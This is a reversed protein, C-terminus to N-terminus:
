LFRPPLSCSAPVAQGSGGLGGLEQALGWASLLGGLQAGVEPADLWWTMRMNGLGQVRLLGM